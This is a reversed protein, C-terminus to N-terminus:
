VVSTCPIVHSRRFFNTTSYIKSTHIPGKKRRKQTNKIIIYRAYDIFNQYDM